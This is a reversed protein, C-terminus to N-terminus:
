SGTDNQVAVAVPQRRDITGAPEDIGVINKAQQEPM